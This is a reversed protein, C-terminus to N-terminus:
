RVLVKMTNDSLDLLLCDVRYEFGNTDAVVDDKSLSLLFDYEAIIEWGKKEIIQTKM